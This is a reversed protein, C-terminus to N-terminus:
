EKTEFYYKRIPTALAEIPDSSPFFYQRLNHTTGFGINSIANCVPAELHYYRIKFDELRQRLNSTKIKLFEAHQLSPRMITPPLKVLVAERAILYSPFVYIAGHEVRNTNQKQWDKDTGEAFYLAVDYSYTLDLFDTPFGYHQLIAEKQNAKLGNPYIERIFDLTEVKDSFEQNAKQTKSIYDDGKKRIRELSTELGWISNFQGRLLISQSTWLLRLLFLAAFGDQFIYDSLNLKWADYLTAWREAIWQIIPKFDASYRAAEQKGGSPVGSHISNLYETRRPLILPHDALAHHMLDSVRFAYEWERMWYGYENGSLNQNSSSM